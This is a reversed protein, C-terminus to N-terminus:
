EAAIEIRHAHTLLRAELEALQAKASQLESLAVTTEAADMSWVPVGAVSGIASRAGAIASTVRHPHNAIATMSGNWWRGGVNPTARFGATSLPKRAWAQPLFTATVVSSGYGCGRRCGWLWGAKPM